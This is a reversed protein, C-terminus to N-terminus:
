HGSYHRFLIDSSYMIYHAYAHVWHGFYQNLANKGADSHTIIGYHYRKIEDPCTMAVDKTTKILEAKVKLYPKVAM